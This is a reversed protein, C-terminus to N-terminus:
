EALRALDELIIRCVAEIIDANTGWGCLTMGITDDSLKSNTLSPYSKILGISGSENGLKYASDLLQKRIATINDMWFNLLDPCYSFGYFLRKYTGNKIIDALIRVLELYSECRLQSVIADLLPYDKIQELSRLEQLTKERLEEQRQGLSNLEQLTKEITEKIPHKM